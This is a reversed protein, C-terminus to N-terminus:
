PKGPPSSGAAAPQATFKKKKKIVKSGLTSHYVLRHATFGLGGRLRKVNRFRNRPPKPHLTQTRAQYDGFNSEVGGRYLGDPVMEYEPRDRWTM